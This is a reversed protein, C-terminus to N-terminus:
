LVFSYHSQLQTSLTKFLWTQNFTNQWVTSEMVLVSTKCLLKQYIAKGNSHAMLFTKKGKSATIPTGGLNYPWLLSQKNLCISYYLISYLLIQLNFSMNRGIATISFTISNMKILIIHLLQLKYQMVKKEKKKKTKLKPKKQASENLSLFVLLLFLIHGESVPM